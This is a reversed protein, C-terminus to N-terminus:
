KSSERYKNLTEIVGLYIGKWNPNIDRDWGMMIIRVDVTPAYNFYIYGGRLLVPEHDIPTLVDTGLSYAYPTFDPHEKSSFTRLGLALDDRVYYQSSNLKFRKELTKFDALGYGERVGSVTVKVANTKYIKGESLTIPSTGSAKGPPIDPWYLDIDLGDSSPGTAYAGAWRYQNTDPFRFRVGGIYVIRFQEGNVEVIKGNEPNVSARYADEKHKEFDCGMLACAVLIGATEVL